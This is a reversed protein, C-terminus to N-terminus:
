AAMEQPEAVLARVWDCLEQDAQYGRGHINRIDGPAGANRLAKRTRCIQVKISDGTPGDGNPHELVARYISEHLVLRSGRKTLAALIAAAQRAIRLRSQIHAVLDKGTLDALQKKLSAVEALLEEERSTM